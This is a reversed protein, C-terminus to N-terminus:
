RRLTVKWLAARQERVQSGLGLAPHSPAFTLPDSGRQTEWLVHLLGQARLRAPPGPLPATSEPDQKPPPLRLIGGEQEGWNPQFRCGSGGSRAGPGTSRPPCTPSGARGGLRPEAPEDPKPVAGKERERFYSAQERPAKISIVVLVHSHARQCGHVGALGQPWAPSRPLGRASRSSAVLQGGQAGTQSMRGCRGGRCATERPPHETFLSGWGPCQRSGGHPAPVFDDM